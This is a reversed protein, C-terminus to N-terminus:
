VSLDVQQVSGVGGTEALYIGSAAIQGRLANQSTMLSVPTELHGPYLAGVQGESLTTLTGKGDAEPQWLRLQAYIPDRVNPLKLARLGKGGV